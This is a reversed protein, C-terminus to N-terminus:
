PATAQLEGGSLPTPDPDVFLSMYPGYRFVRGRRGGTTEQLLDLDEFRGVLVNATQYSIELTTAVLNVNVLPRRFLLALLNLGNPSLNHALVLERHRERLDFIKQATHKAEAATEAVGRLFFRLWGEWDGAVRIATLRDYYEARHLKFYYSLYLLPRHLVDGHVLLFTILLRGVRGNGDLFPHITEFQAHALGVEVLLPYTSEEHLFLEFDHLAKHMDAATPPVFMASTIAAGPAGIWNQTTRFEGPTHHAGRAGQLLQAHIERILRLSLPLTTLRGLGFNMARVYNVVEDVDEPIEHAQSGLDVALLDELTSQTGEIQSSLVAERNVYMAVFLDPDPVNEAIGDLRGVALNADSLLSLLEGDLQLPPDPPLPAPVFSQYGGPQRILRGARSLTHSQANRRRNVAM